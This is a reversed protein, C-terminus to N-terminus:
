SSVRLQTAFPAEPPLPFSLARKMPSLDEGNCLMLGDVPEEGAALINSTQPKM